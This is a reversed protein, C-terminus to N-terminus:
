EQYHTKATNFRFKGFIWLAVFKGSFYKPVSICKDRSCEIATNFVQIM